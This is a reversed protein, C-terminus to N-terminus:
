MLDNFRLLDSVLKFAADYISGDSSARPGAINLIEPQYKRLWEALLVIIEEHGLEALDIHLLPKGRSEAIKATLASGGALVGNTIVLTGDSDLINKRTRDPYGGTTLVQMKYRASLPGKETRRGPPLWGGYSMGHVIAADLAAQDVGTQGGSVIKKVM